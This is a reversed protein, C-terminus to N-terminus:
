SPRVRRNVLGALAAGAVGLILGFVAGVLGILVFAPLRGVLPESGAYGAVMFAFVITFGYVAGVRLGQAPRCWAGLALGAIGWPILSLWSGVFLYRAGVVGLVAGALVAVAYKMVSLGGAPEYALRRVRFALGAAGAVMVAVIAARIWGPLGVGWFLVYVYTVLWLAVMAVLPLVFSSRSFAARFSVRGTQSRARALDRVVFGLAVYFLPITIVVLALYVRPDVGYASRIGAMYVWVREM